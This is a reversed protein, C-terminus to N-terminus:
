VASSPATRAPAVCLGKLPSCPVTGACRRRQVDSRLRRSRWGGAQRPRVCCRTGATPCPILTDSGIAPTAAANAPSSRNPAAPLRSSAANSFLGDPHAAVSDVAGICSSWTGPWRAPTTAASRMTPADALAETTCRQLGEFAKGSGVGLTALPRWPTHMTTCGRANHRHRGVSRRQRARGEEDGEGQREENDAQRGGGQWSRARECFTLSPRYWRGM